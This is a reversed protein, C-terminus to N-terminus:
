VQNEFNNFLVQQQQQSDVENTDYNLVLDNVVNNNNNNNNLLINTQSRSRHHLMHQQYQKQRLSVLKESQHKKSIKDLYRHIAHITYITRPTMLVDYGHHAFPVTIFNCDADRVVEKFRKVFNISEQIPVLEDFDGHLVLFNTKLDPRLNDIPSSRKYLEPDQEYSSRMIVQGLYTPFDFTWANFRNTFDYVAYFSVCARFTPYQQQQQQKEEQNDEYHNQNINIDDFNKGDTLAALSSLHGGASGGAIYMNDIDGGYQFANKRVWDIGLKIDNIHTPFKFEPSLRYGISFVIWKENAMHYILPLGNTDKRSLGPGRWGSGFIYILIPKNAGVTENLGPRLSSHYYIDLVQYHSENAYPVNVSKMVHPYHLHPLPFLIKKWFSFSWKSPHNNSHSHYNHHSHYHHHSHHNSNVNSNNDNDNIIITTKSGIKNKLKFYAKKLIRYLQMKKLILKSKKPKDANKSSHQLHTTSPTLPPRYSYDVIGGGCYADMTKKAIHEIHFGTFYNKLLFISSVLVIYVALKSIFNSHYLGTMWIFLSLINMIIFYHLGFESGVIGPLFAFRIVLPHKGFPGLNSSIYTTIAMVIAFVLYVLSVLFQLIILLILYVMVVSTTNTTNTTNSNNIGNNNFHHTNNLNLSGATSAIISLTDINTLDDM